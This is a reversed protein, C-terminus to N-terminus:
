ATVGYREKLVGLHHRVHGALIFALARVSVPSGNANGVRAWRAPDLRGLVALNAARLGAFDDALEAATQQDYASEAIYDNEDFGPLAAQDGRSICFARYGFVREGDGIHGLIERISWKGPAYRFTERDPPVSRALRRIESAQAALVPLVEAEPVLKVYGAFFPAYEGAAPRQSM